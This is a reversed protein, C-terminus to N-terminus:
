IARRGQIVRIIIIIIAIVFIIHLFGSMTYSSLMGFLWLLLLVTAIIYLM